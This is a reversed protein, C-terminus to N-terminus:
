SPCPAGPPASPGPPNPTPATVARDTYVPPLLSIGRERFLSPLETVSARADVCLPRWYRGTAREGLRRIDAADTDEIHGHATAIPLLATRPDQNLRAHLALERAPDPVHILILHSGAYTDAFRAYGDIKAALQPLHESGTDYELFLGATPVAGTSTPTFAAYADPRILDGWLPLCSDQDWWAALPTGGAAAALALAIMLSNCALTHPLDARAAQRLLKAHDYGFQKPTLDHSAAVLLAGAPGLVYRYASSGTGPLPNTRFRDALHLQHLQRLRATTRREGTFCLAHTHAVTLVRHEALIALLWRDRPTTRFLLYPLNQGPAPFRTTRRTAPLPHAAPENRPAM